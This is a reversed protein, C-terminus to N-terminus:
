HLGKMALEDVTVDYTGLVARYIDGTTFDGKDDLLEDIKKLHEEDPIIPLARYGKLCQVTDGDNFTLFGTDTPVRLALVMAKQAMDKSIRDYQQLRQLIVEVEERRVWAGSDSDPVATLNTSDGNDSVEMKYLTINFEKTLRQQNILVNLAEIEQAAQHLLLGIPIDITPEAHVGDAPVKMVADKHVFRLRHVLSPGILM